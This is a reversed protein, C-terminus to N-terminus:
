EKGLILDLAWCGRTHPGFGRLHALIPDSDCGADQLADALVPLVGFTRDSYVGNAIGTVVETRWAPDFRTPTFPDPFVERIADGMHAAHWEALSHIGFECCHAFHSFWSPALGLDRPSGSERVKAFPRALSGVEAVGDAVAEVARCVEDLLEWYVPSYWRRDWDASVLQCAVFPLLRNKRPSIPVGAALLLDPFVRRTRWSDSHWVETAPTGQRRSIAPDTHRCERCTIRAFMREFRTVLLADCSPCVVCYWEADM